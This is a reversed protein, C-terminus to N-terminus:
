RCTRWCLGADRGGTGRAASRRTFCARTRGAECCTQALLWPLPRSHAFPAASHTSVGPAPMSRLRAAKLQMKLFSWQDFFDCDQQETRSQVFCSFLQTDLFHRMFRQLSFRLSPHRAIHPPCRLVDICVCERERGCVAIVVRVEADASVQEALFKEKDVVDEVAVPSLPRQEVRAGEGEDESSGSGEESVATHALGDMGEGDSHEGYLWSSSPPEASSTRAPADEPVGSLSEDGVGGDAPAVTAPAEPAAPTATDTGADNGESQAESLALVRPTTRSNAVATEASYRALPRVGCVPGKGPSSGHSEEAEEDEDEECGEDREVVAALHEMPGAGRVERQLAEPVRTYKHMAKLLSVLVGCVALRLADPALSPHLTRWSALSRHTPPPIAAPAPATSGSNQTAADRGGEGMAGRGVQFVARIRQVPGPEGDNEEEEGGEDSTDRLDEVDRGALERALSKVAPAAAM